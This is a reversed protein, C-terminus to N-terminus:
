HAFLSYLPTLVHTEDFDFNGIDPVEFFYFHNFQQDLDAIADLDILRQDGDLGVLGAHFDRGAGSAHDLFQFEFDTVLVSFTRHLQQDFCLSVSSCRRSGAGGWCSCRRSWGCCRRSGWYRCRNSCTESTSGVDLAVHHDETGTRATVRRGEPSGVQTQIRHQHLAIRRQAPNAQVDTTDRGLGQQVDGGHNIFGGRHRMMPDGEALRFDIDVLQTGVLFFDDPGHGATQGAHGLRALDVHYLANTLEKAAVMDFHSGSVTAFLGDLELLRNDSGAGRDHVQWEYRLVRTDNIRSTRQLQALHRLAHQDDTAADDTQFHGGHIGCQAGTNIDDFHHISQHLASVAVHDLDPM